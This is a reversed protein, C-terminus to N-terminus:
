VTLLWVNFFNHVCWSWDANRAVDFTVIRLILLSGCCLAVWTPLCTEILSSAELVFTLALRVVKPDYWPLHNINWPCVGSVIRNPCDTINTFIPNSSAKQAPAANLRLLLFLALVESYRAAIILCRNVSVNTPQGAMGVVSIQFIVLFISEHTTGSDSFFDLLKVWVSSYLPHWTGALRYNRYLEVWFPLRLANRVSWIQM